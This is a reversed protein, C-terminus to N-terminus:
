AADAAYTSVVISGFDSSNFVMKKLGFISWGSVELRRKHDYLEENWRYRGISKDMGFGIAVRGPCRPVGRPAHQRGAGFHVLQRGESAAGVRAARCRQVHRSRGHLDPEEVSRRGAHRGEPHRAVPGDLDLHAAVHGALPAPVDRVREAHRRDQDSRIPVLGNSGGTQALEVCKDILTLDFTNTSTLSQDNASPALACSAGAPRPRSAANLGTYKSSSPFGTGSTATNGCVQNFFSVAMRRAWWDVLGDKAEDRLNFPVRQADITNESKVGVVHGLEEIL